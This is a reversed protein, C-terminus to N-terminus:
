VLGDFLGVRDTRGVVVVVAVAATPTRLCLQPLLVVGTVRASCTSSWWCSNAVGGDEDCADTAAGPSSGIRDYSIM